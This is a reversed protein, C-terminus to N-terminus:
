ELFAISKRKGKYLADVPSAHNHQQLIHGSGLHLYIQTTKIDNHRLIIRLAELSGGNRLFLTAFTHRLKHPGKKGAIGIAALHKRVVNAIGTQHLRKGSNYSVFLASEDIAAERETHIYKHLNFRLSYGLPLVGEKRGKGMIRCYAQDINVDKVNLNVVESLRAGTDLFFEIISRDRLSAETRLHHHLDKLEKDSLVEPIAQEIRPARLNDTPCPTVLGERYSWNAFTRVVSFAKHVSSSSLYGDRGQRTMELQIFKRIENVTLDEIQFDGLQELFRDLHDEYARITKPSLRETVCSLIFQDRASKVDM